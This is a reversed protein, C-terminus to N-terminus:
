KFEVFVIRYKDLDLPLGRPLVGFGALKKRHKEQARAHFVFADPFKLPDGEMSLERYAKFVEQGRGPFLGEQEAIRDAKWKEFDFDALAVTSVKLNIEPIEPMAEEAVCALCLAEPPKLLNTKDQYTCDAPKGCRECKEKKEQKAQWLQFYGAGLPYQDWQPAFGGKDLWDQLDRCREDTADGAIHRTVEADICKLCEKPDM